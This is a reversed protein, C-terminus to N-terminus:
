SVDLMARGDLACASSSLAKHQKEAEALKRELEDAQRELAATEAEAAKRERMLADMEQKRATMPDFTKPGPPTNRRATGFLDTPPQHPSSFLAPGTTPPRDLSTGSPSSTIKSTPGPTPRRGNTPSIRPSPDVGAFRVSPQANGSAHSLGANSTSPGLGMGRLLEAAGSGPTTDGSRSAGLGGLGDSGFNGLGSSGGVHDSALGSIGSTGLGGMSNLLGLNSFVNDIGASRPPASRALPDSTLGSLGGGLPEHSRRWSDLGAGALGASFPRRHADFPSRDDTALGAARRQLSPFSDRSVFPDARGLSPFSSRHDDIPGVFPDHHVGFPPSHSRGLGRPDGFSHGRLPDSLGARDFGHDAGGFGLGGRDFSLGGRGLGHESDFGLGGVGHDFSPRRGLGPHARARSDLGYHAHLPDQGLYSPGRRQHAERERSLREREEPSMRALREHAQFNRIIAEQEAPSKGQLSQRMKQEREFAARQLAFEMRNEKPLYPNTPINPKPAPNLRADLKKAFDNLVKPRQTDSAARRRNLIDDVNNRRLSEHDYVSQLPDDMHRMRAALPDEALNAHPDFFPDRSLNRYPSATSAGRM